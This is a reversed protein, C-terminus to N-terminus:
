RGCICNSENDFNRDGHGKCGPHVSTQTFIAWLTAWGNNQRSQRRVRFPLVFTQAKRTTELIHRQNFFEGLIAFIRVIRDGKIADRMRMGLV